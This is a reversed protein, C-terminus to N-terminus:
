ISIGELVTFKNAPVVTDVRGDKTNVQIDYSYTKPELEQTDEPRLEIIAAGEPTFESITKVIAPEERFGRYSLDMIIKKDIVTFVVTDGEGLEYDNLQLKLIGTDGQIIKIVNKADIKFM